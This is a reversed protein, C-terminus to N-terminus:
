GSNTNKILEKEFNTDLVFIEMIEGTKTSIDSHSSIVEHTTIKKVLERLRKTLVEHLSKRIDKVIEIGNSGELLREEIPLLKGQLRIIVMDELIYVSTEHPGVGLTQAYFQTVEKSIKDEAQGKTLM